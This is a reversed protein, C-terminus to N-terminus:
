NFPSSDEWFNAWGKRRNTNFDDDTGFEEVVGISEKEVVSTPLLLESVFNLAVIQPTIYEKKM